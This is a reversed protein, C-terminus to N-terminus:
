KLPVMNFDFNFPIKETDLTGQRKLLKSVSKLDKIVTELNKIEKVHKEPSHDTLMQKKLEFLRTVEPITGEKERSLRFFLEEWEKTLPHGHFALASFATLKARAAEPDTPLLEHFVEYHEYGTKTDLGKETKPPAKQEDQEHTEPVSSAGEVKKELEDYHKLAERHHQIQKAYTQANIDTLMRIELESMRKLDSLHETGERSLRFYLPVWEEALTHEGFLKRAVNQLETRSASPDTFLHKKFTKLHGEWPTDDVRYLQSHAPNPHPNETAKGSDDISLVEVNCFTLCLLCIVIYKM